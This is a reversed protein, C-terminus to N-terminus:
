AAPAEPIPMDLYMQGTLRVAGKLGLTQRTTEDLLQAAEEVASAIETANQGPATILPLGPTPATRFREEVRAAVPEWRQALAWTQADICAWDARGEAVAELSALHAGTALVAGALGRGAEIVERAAAWGSQSNTANCALVGEPVGGPRTVVVSNYYGEPCGPLGYDLTIVYVVKDRLQARFPLSCAQSLILDPALWHAWLAEPAALAEPLDKPLAAGRAVIGDRIIGWFLNLAPETEPRLYMPLAAQFM